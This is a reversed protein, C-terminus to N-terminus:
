GHNVGKARELFTRPRPTAGRLETVEKSAYQFRPTAGRLGKADHRHKASRRIEARFADDPSTKELRARRWRKAAMWLGVIAAVPVALLLLHFGLSIGIEGTAWHVWVREPMTHLAIYNIVDSISSVDAWSQPSMDPMIWVAQGDYQYTELGYEAIMKESPKNEYTM